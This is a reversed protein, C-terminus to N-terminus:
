YPRKTPAFSPELSCSSSDALLFVSRLPSISLHITLNHLIPLLNSSEALAKLIDAMFRSQPFWMEFRTLTPMLQLCAVLVRLIVGDHNVIGLVQERLRSSTRPTATILAEPLVLSRSLSLTELAPLTFCALIEDDGTPAKGPRGFMVRRLTPHVLKETEVHDVGNIRQINEFICEVLDPAARLLEFIQLGSYAGWEDMGSLGRIVLTELLPLPGPSVGLGFFDITRVNNTSENQRELNRHHHSPRVNGSGSAIRAPSLKGARQLWLQLWGKFGGTWPLDMQVASWLEPMSLAIDTWAHCINLFLLPLHDARPEPFSPALRERHGEVGQLTQFFIESSLELPLRAVPDLVANLERQALSKDKQLDKLVARQLDIELSLKAVRARLEEVSSM